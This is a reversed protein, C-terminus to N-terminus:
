NNNIVKTTTQEGSDLNEFIALNKGPIVEILNNRLNVTINRKKVIEWLADAYHKASFLVPLSTNYIIKANRRKKSQM